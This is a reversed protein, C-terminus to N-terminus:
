LMAMSTDDAAGHAFDTAPSLKMRIGRSSPVEWVDFAGWGGRWVELALQPLIKAKRRLSGSVRSLTLLRTWNVLIPRGCLRSLSEDSDQDLSPRVAHPLM